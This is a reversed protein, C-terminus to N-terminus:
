LNPKILYTEVVITTICCVHVSVCSKTTYYSTPVYHAHLCKERRNRQKSSDDLKVAPSFDISVSLCAPHVTFSM